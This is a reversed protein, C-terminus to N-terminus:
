AHGSHGAAEAEEVVADVLHQAGKAAVAVVRVRRGRRGGGGSGGRELREGGRQEHWQSVVARVRSAACDRARASSSQDRASVRHGAREADSRGVVEGIEGIQQAEIRLGRELEERECSLNTNNTARRLSALERLTSICVTCRVNWKAYM